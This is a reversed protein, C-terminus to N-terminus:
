AEHHQTKLKKNNHKKRKNKMTQAKRKNTEKNNDKKEHKLYFSASIFVVMLLNVHRLSKCAYFETNLGALEEATNCSFSFTLL